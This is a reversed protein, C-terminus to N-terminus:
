GAQQYRVQEAGTVDFKTQDLLGVQVLVSAQDWYIHEHALKWVGDQQAFRVVALLPICITKGTPAVSPLMWDIPQDHVVTIVMQLLHLARVHATRACAHLSCWGLVSICLLYQHAAAPHPERLYCCLAKSPQIGSM